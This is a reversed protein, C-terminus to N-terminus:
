GAEPKRKPKMYENGWFDFYVISNIFPKTRQKTAGMEYGIPFIGEVKIDPPIQLIRGVMKESFAGVWCTALKLDTIKLLFNEISAGAQQTSYLEGREEYTRTCNATDSCVVVVYHVTAVFDQAAAEALQQIKEKDSVLLFKITPINGALPAKNAADIAELIKVYDPKKTKFRRVSHRERIAKDLDM